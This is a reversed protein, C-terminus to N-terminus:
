PQEPILLEAGLPIVNPDDGIVERNAEYILRWLTQTGYYEQSISALTDTADIRHTRVAAVAPPLSTATTPNTPTTTPTPTQTLTM